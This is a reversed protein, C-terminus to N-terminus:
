ETKEIHPVFNQVSTLIQNIVEEIEEPSERELDEKNLWEKIVAMIGSKCFVFAYEAIKQSKYVKKQVWYSTIKFQLKLIAESMFGEHFHNNFYVKYFYANTNVLTLINTLKLSTPFRKNDLDCLFSELEFASFIQKEIDTLLHYIDDYHAYFTARSINSKDCLAKITIKEIPKDKLLEFLSEKLIHKTYNIRHDNKM